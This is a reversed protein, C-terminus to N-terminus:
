RTKESVYETQPTKDTSFEFQKAFLDVPLQYAQAYLQRAAEPKLLPAVAALQLMSVGQAYRLHRGSEDITADKLISNLLRRWRDISRTFLGMAVDYQVRNAATRESNVSEGLAQPPVNLSLLVAHRARAYQERGDILSLLARTEHMERGDTVAHEGHHTPEAAARPDNMMGGSGPRLIARRAATSREGLKTIADTRKQILDDFTARNPRQGLSHQAPGSNQFWHMTSSGVPKLDRSVITFVEPRSNHEDRRLWNREIDILRQLLPYGLVTPSQWEWPLLTDASAAASGPTKLPKFAGAGAAQGARPRVPPPYVVVLRWGRSPGHRVRMHYKQNRRSVEINDPDAVQLEGSPTTRWAVFGAAVISTLVHELFTEVQARDDGIEAGDSWEIPRRSLESEIAWLALRHLASTRVVQMPTPRDM